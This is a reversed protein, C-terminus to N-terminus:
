GPPLAVQGMRQVVPRGRGFSLEVARVAHTGIDLGIVRNSM